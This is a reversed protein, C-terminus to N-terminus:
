RIGSTPDLPGRRRQKARPVIAQGDRAPRGAAEQTGRLQRVVIFHKATFDALDARLEITEPMDARRDAILHDIGTTQLLGVDTSGITQLFKADMIHAHEEGLADEEVHQCVLSLAAL